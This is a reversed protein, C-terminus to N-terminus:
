PRLRSRRIFRSSAHSQRGAARRSRFGESAQVATESGSAAAGVANGPVRDADHIGDPASKAVYDAALVGNAGTKNEVIVTAGTRETLKQAYLRSLIDSMGGPQTPVIIRIPRTPYDQAQGAGVFAFPMMATVVLLEPPSAGLRM